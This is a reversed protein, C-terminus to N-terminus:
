DRYLDERAWGRGEGVHGTPHQKALAILEAAQATTDGGAYRELVNALYRNVSEGQELARIRARKLVHDDVVITLNAM